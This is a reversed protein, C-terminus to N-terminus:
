NRRRCVLPAGCFHLRDAKYGYESAKARLFRIAAKIDHVMAPFRAEDSPRFDLSATAIGEAVFVLPVESKDGLVWRGGHVWVILPPQDVGAPMYLDLALHKDGVAAYVIDTHATIAGARGADSSGPAARRTASMQPAPGPEM